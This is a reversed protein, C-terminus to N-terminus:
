KLTKKPIQFHVDYMSLKAGDWAYGKRITLKGKTNLDIFFTTINEKPYIVTDITYTECLQYKYGYKYTIM